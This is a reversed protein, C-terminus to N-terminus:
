RIYDKCKVVNCQGFVRLFMQRAAQLAQKRSTFGNTTIRVTMVKAPSYTDFCYGWRGKLNRNWGWQGDVSSYYISTDADYSEVEPNLRYRYESKM